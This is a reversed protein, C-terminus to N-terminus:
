CISIGKPSEASYCDGQAGANTPPNHFSAAPLIAQLRYAGSFMKLLLCSKDQELLLEGLLFNWCIGYLRATTAGHSDRVVIAVLQHQGRM